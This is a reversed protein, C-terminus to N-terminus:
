SGSVACEDVSWFFRFDQGYSNYPGPESWTVSDFWQSLTHDGKQQRVRYM